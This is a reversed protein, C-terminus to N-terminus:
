DNELADISSKDELDPYDNAGTNVRPFYKYTEAYMIMATGIQKLNGHCANRRAMERAVGLAPLLLAVLTCIIAVVIM